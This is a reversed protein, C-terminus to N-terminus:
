NHLFKLTGSLHSHNITTWLMVCYNLRPPPTSIGDDVFCQFFNEACLWCAACSHLVRSPSFLWRALTLASLSHVSQVTRIDMFFMEDCLFSEGEEKNKALCKGYLRVGAPRGLVVDVKGTYCETHLQFVQQLLNGSSKTHLDTSVSGERRRHGVSSRCSSERTHSSALFTFLIIRFSINGMLIRRVSSSIDSFRFIHCFDPFGKVREGEERVYVVCQISIKGFKQHTFLTRCFNEGFLIKKKSQVGLEQSWLTGTQSCHTSSNLM